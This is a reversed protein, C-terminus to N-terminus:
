RDASRDVIWCSVQRIRHPGQRAGAWLRGQDVPAQGGCEGGSVAADGAGGGAPYISVYLM